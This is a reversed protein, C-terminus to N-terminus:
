EEMIDIIRKLQNLALGETSGFSFYEKIKSELNNFELEDYIEQKTLYLYYYNSSYESIDMIIDHHGIGFKMRDFRAGELYIYKNGIKLVKEELIHDEISNEDIGSAVNGVKKLYITQGVKFDKINM